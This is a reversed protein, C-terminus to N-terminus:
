WDETEDLYQKWNAGSGRRYPSKPPKKKDKKPDDLSIGIGWKSKNCWKISQNDAEALIKAVENNMVEVLPKGIKVYCTMLNFIDEEIISAKLIIRNDSLGSFTENKVRKSFFVTYRPLNGEKIIVDEIGKLYTNEIGSTYPTCHKFIRCKHCPPSEYTSKFFPCEINELATIYKTLPSINNSLFNKWVKEFEYTNTFHKVAHSRLKYKNKFLIIKLISNEQSTDSDQCTKVSFENYRSHQVDM